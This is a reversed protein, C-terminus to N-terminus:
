NKNDETETEAQLECSVTQLGAQLRWMGYTLLDDASIIEQPQQDASGAICISLSSITPWSAALFPFPGALPCHLGREV